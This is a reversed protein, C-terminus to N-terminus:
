QRYSEVRKTQMKKGGEKKKKASSFWEFCLKNKGSVYQFKILLWILSVYVLLKWVRLCM